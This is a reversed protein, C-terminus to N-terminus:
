CSGMFALSSSAVKGTQDDKQMATWIGEQVNLLDPAPAPAAAPAPTTSSRLTKKLPKFHGSLLAPSILFVSSVSLSLTGPPLQLQCLSGLLEWDFEWSYTSHHELKQYDVIQCAKGIGTRGM